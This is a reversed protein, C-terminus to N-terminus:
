IGHNCYNKDHIIYNLEKKTTIWIMHNCYMIIRVTIVYALLRVCDDGTHFVFVGIVHSFSIIPGTQIMTIHKKQFYINNKGAGIMLIEVM